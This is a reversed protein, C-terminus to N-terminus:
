QQYSKLLGQLFSVESKMAMMLVQWAGEENCHKSATQWLLVQDNNKWSGTEPHIEGWFWFCLFLTVGSSGSSNGLWQASPYEPHDRTSRLSFYKFAQANFGSTVVKSLTLFLSGWKEVHEAQVALGGPTWSLKQSEANVFILNWGPNRLDLISLSKFIWPLCADEGFCLLYRTSSPKQCSLM